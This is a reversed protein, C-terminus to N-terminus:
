HQILLALASEQGPVLGAGAAAAPPLPQVGRTSGRAAEDSVVHKEVAFM